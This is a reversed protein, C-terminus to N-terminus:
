ARLEGSKREKVRTIKVIYKCDNCMKTSSIDRCFVADVKTVIHISSDGRKHPQILILTAM